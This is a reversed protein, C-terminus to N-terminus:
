REYYNTKQSQHRIPLSEPYLYDALVTTTNPVPPFFTKALTNSKDENTKAEHQQGNPNRSKLTPIRALGGDNPEANLYKNAIWIDAMTASELWNIWHDLKAKKIAESYKNHIVHHQEHSPHNPLAQTKYSDAAIRNVQRCLTTLKHNWWCKSHPSYKAMPVTEKITTQIAKTIRATITQFEHNTVIPTNTPYKDLEKTLVKNFKKWDMEHFNRKPM